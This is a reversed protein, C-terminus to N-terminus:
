PRDIIRLALGHLQEYRDRDCSGIGYIVTEYSRAFERFGGLFRSPRAALDRVYDGITKSEHLEADGRAAVAQLLAAYLAHAASTYDGHAAYRRAAVWADSSTM